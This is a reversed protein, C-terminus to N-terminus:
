DISNGSLRACLTEKDSIDVLANMPRATWFSSRAGAARRAALAETLLESVIASIPRGERERITQIKELVIDDIDITIHM